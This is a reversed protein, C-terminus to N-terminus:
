LDTEWQKDRYKDAILECLKGLYELNVQYMVDPSPHIETDGGGHKEFDKIDEILEDRIPLLEEYSMDKYEDVYAEPSIMSMTNVMRETEM